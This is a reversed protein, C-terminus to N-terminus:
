LANKIFNIFANVMPLEASSNHYMLWTQRVLPEGNANFLPQMFLGPVNELGIEPLIAWGLGALIMQRCTSMNDVEMTTNPPQTFHEHWWRTIIPQLSSDTIYAIQPSSSLDNLQLPKHSVLCIPEEKLLIKGESWAYDGRIIALAIDERQLLTYIPKSLGTKLYLDINPHIELFNRLIDPLIYISFVSSSGIRLTGSITNSMSNLQDKFIVFRQLMENAYKLFCEGEPTFLVGTHHRSLLKINFEKELNQIRYTLAPQSIYLKEAAKTLNKEESLVKLVEWDRYDMFKVVMFLIKKHNFM